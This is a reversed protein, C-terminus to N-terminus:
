CISNLKYNGAIALMLTIKSALPLLPTLLKLKLCTQVSLNAFIEMKGFHDKLLNRRIV